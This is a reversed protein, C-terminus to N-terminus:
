KNSKQFALLPIRMDNLLNYRSQAWVKFADDSILMGVSPMLSWGLRKMIDIHIILVKSVDLRKLLRSWWKYCYESDYCASVLMFVSFSLRACTDHRLPVGTRGLLEHALLWM